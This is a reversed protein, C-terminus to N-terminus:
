DVQKLGTRLYAEELGPSHPAFSSVPIGRGVLDALLAAAQARENSYEIVVRDRDVQVDAVGEIGSLTEGLGAVPRALMVTYRCRQGNGASAVEAVTGSHLFDGHAMIAIHTCYENLDALIHSSVILAKGQDRLSCLLQRFQVRGAPDLGAAPEDLLIVNPNPLLTRAIGIRQRMGRSLSKIKEDAKGSLWVQELWFDIRSEVELSPLGYGMGIFRLFDRVTLEEYVSPTDATFGVHRKFGIQGPLVPEGMVRVRGATLAQLGAIARLLTTKGSGNPGILGLLDGARMDFSLDHVAVLKGFQVRVRDVSILIERSAEVAM